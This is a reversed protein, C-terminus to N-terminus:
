DGSSPIVLLAFIFHFFPEHFSDPSSNLCGPLSWARIPNPSPTFPRPEKHSSETSRISVRNAIVLYCCIFRAFIEFTPTDPATQLDSTTPLKLIALSPPTMREAAGLVVTRVGAMMIPRLSGLATVCCRLSGASSCFCCCSKARDQLDGSPPSPYRDNPPM